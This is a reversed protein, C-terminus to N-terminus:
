RGRGAGGSTRGQGYQSAAGVMRAAKKSPEHEDGWRGHNLKAELIRLRAELEEFKELESLRFLADLIARAGSVRASPPAERDGMVEELATAARNGLARLRRAVGEWIERQSAKLAEIVRPDKLWRRVTRASVGVADAVQKPSEGLALLEVAKARKGTIPPRVTETM